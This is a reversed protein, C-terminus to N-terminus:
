KGIDGLYSIFVVTSYLIGLIIRFASYDMFDDFTNFKTINTASMKGSWPKGTSQHLIVPRKGKNSHDSKSVIPQFNM